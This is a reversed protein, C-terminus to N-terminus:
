LFAKRIPLHAVATEVGLELQPEKYSNWLIFLSPM